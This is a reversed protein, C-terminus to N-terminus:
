EEEDTDSDVEGALWDRADCESWAHGEGLHLAVKVATEGIFCVPCNSM